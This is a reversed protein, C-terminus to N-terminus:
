REENEPIREGRSRSFDYLRMDARSYCQEYTVFENYEIEDTNYLEYYGDSMESTLYLSAYGNEENILYVYLICEMYKTHSVAYIIGALASIIENHNVYREEEM